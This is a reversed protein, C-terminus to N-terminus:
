GTKKIIRPFYLDLTFFYHKFIWFTWIIIVKFILKYGELTMKWSKVIIEFLSCPSRSLYLVKSTCFCTRENFYKVLPRLQKYQKALICLLFIQWKESSFFHFDFYIKWSVKVENQNILQFNILEKNLEFAQWKQKWKQVHQSM